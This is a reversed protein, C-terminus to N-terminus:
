DRRLLFYIAVPIILLVAGGDREYVTTGQSTIYLILASMLLMLIGAVKYIVFMLRDGEPQRNGKM